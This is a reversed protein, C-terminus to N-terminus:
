GVSQNLRSRGHRVLNNLVQGLYVVPITHEVSGTAIASEPMSPFPASRPQQAISVGGHARVVVSGDAGDSDMGSLVLSALRMGFAKSASAFLVDASPRVHKVPPADSLHIREDKIALHRGPPAVYVCGLSLASGEVAHVVPLRSSRALVIPMASVAKPSVHQVLLISAPYDDFLDGLIKQVAPLGGASSGIAIADVREKEWQEAAKAARKEIRGLARSILKEFSPEPLTRAFSALTRRWVDLIREIDVPTACALAGVRIEDDIARSLARKDQPDLATRLLGVFRAAERAVRDPLSRPRAPCLGGTIASTVLIPLEHHLLRDLM